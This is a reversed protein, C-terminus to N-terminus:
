RNVQPRSHQGDENKETRLQGCAASIDRGKSKRIIATMHHQLLLQLFRQIRAEEPRRFDSAAHENFPILNVKSRIPHLLKILRLADQESDNVDKILIYEFTIKKRRPLPYQQCAELLKELPYKRNVPMLRSRTANDTANLSIALNVDSDRGLATIKPVIGATSLTIRRSAIKLGCDANTIVDLAQLVHDYNALPEGMGMLVVNTIKKDENRMNLDKRIDRIQSVIEGSSLHRVFGGSATLCFACGQACGVQTSICLTYHGKEPLLVSEIHNGDWLRFLFKRTGDTSTQVREIDLRRITFHSNLLSRIEKSLDTMEDFRDAQRLYIWRFIQAARFSRMGHTELWETLQAKSFNKIDIPELTTRL